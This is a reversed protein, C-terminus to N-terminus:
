KLLSDLVGQAVENYKDLTTQIDAGAFVEELAPYLSERAVPSVGTKKLAVTGYSLPESLALTIPDDKFNEQASKLYAPTGCRQTWETCIEASNWYEVFDYVLEKHEPSTTKPISFGVPIITAQKEQGPQAPVSTVGFNIENDRLGNIIWPGNIFMGLQGSIYTNDDSDTPSAKMNAYVDYMWEFAAVNEPSNLMSVTGTEDTYNGGFAFMTYQAVVNSDVPILWGYQNQSPNTLKAAFEKIEDFSTPPQEPDLGAAAFLDKDWFLYHSVLQMPIGVILDDYRLGEVVNADFDDKNVTPREYYDSTDQFSGAKVYSPYYGTSCLVFDPAQNAAIAAPLKENFTDWPMVDMEITVGKDNTENYRQVIEKLVDGDTSTFGNWFTLTVKEEAVACSAFVTTMIALTLIIAFVKKM